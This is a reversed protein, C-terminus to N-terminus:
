PDLPDVPNSQLSLMSPVYRAESVSIKEMDSYPLYGLERLNRIDFSHGAETISTIHSPSSIVLVPKDAPIGNHFIIRNANRINTTTHRAFPDVIIAEEPLGYQEMLYRKMEIAECYKTGAPHVYGGSAIICPALRKRYRVVASDCRKRGVPSLAINDKDPGSGLLLIASYPYHRWAATKIKKLAARNLGANLPEHRVAEDCGNIALLGLSVSLAPAYFQGSKGAIALSDFLGKIRARYHIHADDPYYAALQNQFGYHGIIYNCGRICQGWARLFLLKNNGATYVEYYGSPRLQYDILSDLRLKSNEYITSLAHDIKLSDEFSYQLVSFVSDPWNASLEHTPSLLKTKAQYISDLAPDKGLLQKIEPYFEFVTLLYFNKDCLMNGKSLYKCRADFDISTQAKAGTLVVFLLVIILRFM